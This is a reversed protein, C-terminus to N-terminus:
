SKVERGGDTKEKRQIAPCFMYMSLELLFMELAQGHFDRADGANAPPNKVIQVV